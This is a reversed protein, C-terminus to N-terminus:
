IGPKAERIEYRVHNSVSERVWIYGEGASCRDPHTYSAPPSTDQSQLWDLYPDHESGGQWITNGWGYTKRARREPTEPTLDIEDIVPDAFDSVPLAVVFEPQSNIEITFTGDERRWDVDVVGAALKVRGRAWRLDAPRPQITIMDPTAPKVGLFGAPLLCVPSIAAGSCAIIGDPDPDTLPNSDWYTTAGRHLMGGWVLRILELAEDPKDQELMHGIIPHLERPRVPAADTAGCGHHRLLHEDSEEELSEAEEHWRWADDANSVARALRSAVSLVQHRLIREVPGAPPKGSGCDASASVSPYLQQVLGLDGTFLLYDHLMQLWDLSRDSAQELADAALAADGFCYYNALAQVRTSGIDREFVGPSPEYTDQMCLGLTRVGTRWISNLMEDSCEFTSVQEVPYGVATALFSEVHVPSQVDRFTLQVYRFVRRGFSQWEQRGGHLILRDARSVGGRTPWVRGERNLIESYGIDVVAEGGGRIKICPYGVTEAGFDLVVYTDSGPAIVAADGSVTLMERPYRIAGHDSHIPEALMLHAVDAPPNEIAGVTGADLIYKPYLERERLLPIQRPAVRVPGSHIARALPWAGDDFGVVNWGVPKRRSDYVEQHQERPCIHGSDYLWEAAPIVSWTDDTCLLLEPSGNHTVELQLLFGAPTQSYCLAAVVNKGPRIVHSLDHTDYNAGCNAGRGVYRGNAYLKYQGTCSVCAEASPASAVVFEKRAYVYCNAAKPDSEAWIWKAKFEM